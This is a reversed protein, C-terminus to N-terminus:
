ELCINSMYMNCKVSLKGIYKKKNKINSFHYFLTESYYLRGLLRGHCLKAFSLERYFKDRATDRITGTILLAVNHQNLKKPFSLM